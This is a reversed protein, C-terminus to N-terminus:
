LRYSDYKKVLSYTNYHNMSVLLKLSRCHVFGYKALRLFLCIVYM